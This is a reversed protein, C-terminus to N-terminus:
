WHVRGLRSSTEQQEDGNEEDEIDGYLEAIYSKFFDQERKGYDTTFKRHKVIDEAQTLAQKLMELKSM